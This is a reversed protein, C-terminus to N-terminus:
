SLLSVVMFRSLNAQAMITQQAAAYSSGNRQLLRYLSEAFDQAWTKEDEGVHREIFERIEQQRHALQERLAAIQDLTHVVADLLRRIERPDDAPLQEPLRLLSDEVSEVRQAREAAFLKGEGRVTLHERLQLWDTEPASFKLAGQPTLEARIGAEGLGANFRRLLQQDSLGEELVVAVPEALKRGAAFLLREAGAARLQELSELGKLTFRARAPEHLRLRLSADLAGGTRESRQDLTTRADELLGQLRERDNMVATGLQRSLGLKLLNLRGSLDALYSEASQMSTLQQNLQLSFGSTRPMVQAASAAASAVSAQAGERVPLVAQQRRGQPEIAAIPSLPKEVKM